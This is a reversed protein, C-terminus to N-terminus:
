KVEELFELYRPDIKEVKDRTFKTKSWSTEMKDSLMITGNPKINLYGIESDILKIYYLPEEEVEWEDDIIAQILLLKTSNDFHSKQVKNMAFLKYDNDRQLYFQSYNNNIWNELERTLKIM